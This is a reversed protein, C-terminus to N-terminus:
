VAEKEHVASVSLTRWGARAARERLVPDEGVVVPDGVAELMSLDSAHDAYATSHALSLGRTAALLRVVRGKVPGIVPVVVEGTLEGRRIVPRTCVVGDAGLHGAVPDLCAFFSGSILHIQGRDRQVALAALVPEHFFDGEATRAAFWSEGIASLEAASRGAYLRYYRRNIQERPTGNAAARHLEGALREYTGESEGQAALYYRLFTFMSKDAIVTEDVDFFGAVETM